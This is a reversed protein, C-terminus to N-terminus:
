LWRMPSTLTISGGTPGTYRITNYNAPTVRLFSGSFYRITNVGDREVTGDAGDIIVTNGSGLVPDAYRCWNGGDTVNVVTFDAWVATPVAQIILPADINSGGLTVFLIDQPSTTISVTSTRNAGYWFPDSCLFEMEIDVATWALGKDKRTHRFSQCADVNIYGYIDWWFRYPQGDNYIAKTMTYIWGELLSAGTTDYLSGKVKVIRPKIGLDGTQKAGHGGFRDMTKVRADYNRDELRHLDFQTPFTYFTVNATDKLVLSM